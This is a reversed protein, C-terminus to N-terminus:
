TREAELKAQAAELAVRAATRKNFMQRKVGEPGLVERAARDASEFALKAREYRVVANSKM